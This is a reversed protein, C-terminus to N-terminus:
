GRGRVKAFAKAIDSRKMRTARAQKQAKEIIADFDRITPPTSTKLVVADGEGVVVFQDGAKLGLQNRVEEPIVVQGKSSLKATAVLAM